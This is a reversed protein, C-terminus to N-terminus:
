RTICWRRSTSRPSAPWSGASGEPIGLRDFTRKVNEPVDDWSKEARETSRLYYTIQDFDIEALMEQNGWSPMPKATFVDLAKHRVERMWEPEKKLRSIMEVVEHSIGKPARVFFDEPDHFGYRTAYDAGIELTEPGTSIANGGGRGRVARDPRVEVVGDRAFASAAPLLLALLALPAVPHMKKM